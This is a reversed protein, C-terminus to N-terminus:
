HVVLKPPAPPVPIFGSKYHKGIETTHIGGGGSTELQWHSTVSLLTPSLSVCDTSRLRLSQSGDYRLM